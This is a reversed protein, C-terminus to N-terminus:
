ILREKVYNVLRKYSDPAGPLRAADMLDPLYRKMLDINETIRTDANLSPPLAESGRGRGTDVGDSIPLSDQSDADLPTLGGLISAMSTPAAPAGTTPSPAQEMKAAGAQAELAGNQGYGFGTYNPNPQGSQGNGGLPNVNAPNNQPATPRDGGSRGPQGAM